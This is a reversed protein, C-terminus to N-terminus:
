SEAVVGSDRQSRAAVAVDSRDTVIGDVGMDWFREMTPADDITWVHVELGKQHATRVLSPTVLSLGFRTPPIQLAVINEPVAWSDAPLGLWSRLKGELVHPPTASCPVGPLKSSASKRTKEDFSAILVREEARLQTVVDVFADVVAFEKLDVNFRHDPLAQLVESLLAFGHGGGLDMEALQRATYDSVLGQRGTLRSLDPDHALVAQSDRTLHIDTELIDAGVAVAAQFAALTNEPVDVALGRHAIVRPTPGELYAM